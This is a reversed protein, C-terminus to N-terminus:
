FQVHTRSYCPALIACMMDKGSAVCKDDRGSSRAVRSALRAGEWEDMESIEALVHACVPRLVTRSFLVTRSYCV